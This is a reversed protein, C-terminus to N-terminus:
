PRLATPGCSVGFSVGFKWLGRRPKWLGWLPAQHALAEPHVTLLLFLPKEGPCRGPPRLVLAPSSFTGAAHPALGGTRRPLPPTLLPSVLTM